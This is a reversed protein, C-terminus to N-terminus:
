KKESAAVLLLHRLNPAPSAATPLPPPLLLRSCPCPASSSTAVDSGHMSAFATAEPDALPCASLDLHHSTFLDTLLEFEAMQHILTHIHPVDGADVLRLEAWVEGSFTTANAPTVMESHCLRCPSHFLLPLTLLSPDVCKAFFGKMTM